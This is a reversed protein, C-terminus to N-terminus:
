IILMNWSSSLLVFNGVPNSIFLFSLSHEGWLYNRVFLKTISRKLCYLFTLFWNCVPVRACVCVCVCVAEYLCFFSSIRTIEGERRTLSQLCCCHNWNEGVILVINFQQICNKNAQDQRFHTYFYLNLYCEELEM